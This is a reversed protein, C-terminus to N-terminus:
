KINSFTNKIQNILKLDNIYIHKLIRKITPNIMKEKKPFIGSKKIDSLKSNYDFKKESNNNQCNYYKNYTKNNEHINTIKSLENVDIVEVNDNVDLINIYPKIHNFQHVIHGSLNGDQDTINLNLSSCGGWEILNNKDKFYVNLNNVNKVKNDYCFLLFKIYEFFTIDLNLYCNNNKLDEYFGSFFRDYIDRIVIIKRFDKDKLIEIIEDREYSINIPIKLYKSITQTGCKPSLIFCRNDIYDIYIPM